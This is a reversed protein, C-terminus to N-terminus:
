RANSSILSTWRERQRGKPWGPVPRVNSESGEYSRTSFRFTSSVWPLIWLEELHLAAPAGHVGVVVEGRTSARTARVVVAPCGAHSAVQMAVSGLVLGTLGGTGRSGTVVMLANEAREILVKAPQGGTHEGTVELGPVRDRARAVALDVVDRGGDLLQRRVRTAGPDGPVDFLWPAVVHVVNLAVRRRAAEDAAWDIALLSSESGDDGVVITNMGHRSM